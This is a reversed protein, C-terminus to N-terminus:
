LVCKGQILLFGDQCEQCRGDAKCRACGKMTCAQCRGGAGRYVSSVPNSHGDYVYEPCQLCKQQTPADCALCLPDACRRPRPCRSPPHFFPNPTPPGVQTGRTSGDNLAPCAQLCWFCATSRM